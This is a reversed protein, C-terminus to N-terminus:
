NDWIKMLRQLTSVNGTALSFYGFFNGPRYNPWKDFGEEMYVTFWKQKAYIFMYTMQLIHASM